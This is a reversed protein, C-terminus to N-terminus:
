AKKEQQSAGGAKIFDMLHQRTYVWFVECQTRTLPTRWEKFPALSVLRPDEDVDEPQIWTLVGFWAADGGTNVEPDPKLMVRCALVDTVTSALCFYACVPM